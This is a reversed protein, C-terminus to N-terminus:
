KWGVLNAGSSPISYSSRNPELGPELATTFLATESGVTSTFAIGQGSPSLVPKNVQRQSKPLLAPSAKLTAKAGLPTGTAMTVLGWSPSDSGSFQCLLVSDSVWALPSCSTGDSSSEPVLVTYHSVRDISEGSTTYDSWFKSTKGAAEALHTYLDVGGGSRSAGNGQSAAATGSRNALGCGRLVLMAETVQYGSGSGCDVVGLSRRAGKGDMAVFGDENRAVLDGNPAFRPEEDKPIRASFRPDQDFAASLDEVHGTQLEV